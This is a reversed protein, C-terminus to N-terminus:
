FCCNELSLSSFFMNLGHNFLMIKDSRNIHLFGWDWTCMVLLCVSIKRFSFGGCLSVCVFM